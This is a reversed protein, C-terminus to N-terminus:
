RKLIDFCSYYNQFFFKSHSLSCVNHYSVPKGGLLVDSLAASFTFSEIMKVEFHSMNFGTKLDIASILLFGDSGKQLFPLGLDLFM